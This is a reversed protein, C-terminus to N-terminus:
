IAIIPHAAHKSSFVEVSCVTPGPLRRRLRAAQWRPLFRCSLSGMVILDAHWTAAQKQVAHSLSGDFVATGTALGAARLIEAARGTLERARARRGEWVTELSGAADFWLEAASPPMRPVASVVCITTGEQWRRRAVADVASASRASYDIALIVRM